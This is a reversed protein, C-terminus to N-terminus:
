GAFPTWAEDGTHATLHGELDFALIGVLTDTPLRALITQWATAVLSQRFLHECGAVTLLELAHAVTNAQRLADADAFGATQALTVLLEPNFPGKSAHTNRRGEAIKILKGPMGALIVRPLPHSHLTDLAVGLFDGMQVFGVRALGPLQNMAFREARGGTTLVVAPAEQRAAAQIGQVVTAKFAATSYPHAIGSVGLISIGGLIGLRPNLTRRAMTEGNPVSIVVQLGDHALIPEGAERVNDTINRRPIPNIAAEGVPAPLGPRTVRGVGPGGDLLIQGAQGALRTVRATIHAAHTVDPGSGGDKIVVAMAQNEERSTERIPFLVRQGNPLLTAVQEPITGQLLLTAARAAAAACAGTTFGSRGGSRNM